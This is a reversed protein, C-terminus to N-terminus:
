ARARWRGPCRVAARGPAAAPARARATRRASRPQQGGPRRPSRAGSCSLGIRRTAHHVRRRLDRRHMAIRHEFERQLRQLGVERQRQHVLRAPGFSRAMSSMATAASTLRTPSGIRTAAVGRALGAIRRVRDHRRRGRDDARLADLARQRARARQDVQEGTRAQLFAVVDVEVCEPMRISSAVRASNMARASSASSECGSAISFATFRGRRALRHEEVEQQPRPPRRDRSAIRAAMEVVIAQPRQHALADAAQRGFGQGPVQAQVAHHDARGNRGVLM